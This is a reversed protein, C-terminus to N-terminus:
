QSFFLSTRTYIYVNHYYRVVSQYKHVTHYIITIYIHVAAYKTLITLNNKAVLKQHIFIKMIASTLLQMETCQVSIRVASCQM